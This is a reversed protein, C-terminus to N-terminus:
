RNGRSAAGRRAADSRRDHAAAEADATGRRYADLLERAEGITRAGLGAAVWDGTTEGPFSHQEVYEAVTIRAALGIRARRRSWRWAVYVVGALLIPWPGGVIASLVLLGALVLAVRSREPHRRHAAVAYAALVAGATMTRRNRNM